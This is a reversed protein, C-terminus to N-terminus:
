ENTGLYPEEDELWALDALKQTADDVAKGRMPHHPGEHGAPRACYLTPGLDAPCEHEVPESLESILAERLQEDKMNHEALVRDVAEAPALREEEMDTDAEALLQVYLPDDRNTM